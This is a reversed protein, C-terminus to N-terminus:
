DTKSHQNLIDIAVDVIVSKSEEPKELGYNNICADYAGSVITRYGYKCECLELVIRAIVVQAKASLNM